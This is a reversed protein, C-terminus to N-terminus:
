NHRLALACAIQVPFGPNHVTIFVATGPPCDRDRAVLAVILYVPPHAGSGDCATEQVVGSGSGYMCDGVVIDIGGGGGPDGPHPPRLNRLCAIGAPRRDQHASGSTKHVTSLDLVFDTGSPCSVASAGVAMRKVVIALAGSDTCPVQQYVGDATGPRHGACAGVPFFTSTGATTEPPTAHRLPSRRTPTSPSTGPTRGATGRSGSTPGASPSAGPATLAASRGPLFSVRPSTPTAGAGGVRNLACGAAALLLAVSLSLVPAVVPRRRPALAPM